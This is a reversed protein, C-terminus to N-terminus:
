VLHGVAESVMTKSAETRPEAPESKATRTEKLDSEADGTTGFSSRRLSVQSSHFSVDQVPLSALMDLQPSTECADPVNPNPGPLNADGMIGHSSPGLPPQTQRRSLNAPGGTLSNTPYLGDELKGGLGVKMRRAPDNNSDKQVVDQSAARSGQASSGDVTTATTTSSCGSSASAQITRSSASQHRLDDDNAPERDRAESWLWQTKDSIPPSRESLHISM